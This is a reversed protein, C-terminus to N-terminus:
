LLIKGESFRAIAQTELILKRKVEDLCEQYSGKEDLGMLTRRSVLKELFLEGSINLGLKHGFPLLRLNSSIKLFSLASLYTCQAYSHLPDVDQSLDAFELASKILHISNSFTDVAGDVDSIFIQYQSLVDSRVDLTNDNVSVYAFCGNISNYDTLVKTQHEDTLEVYNSHFVEDGIFYGDIFFEKNSFANTGNNTFFLLSGHSFKKEIVTLSSREYCSNQKLTEILDKEIEKNRKKSIYIFEM